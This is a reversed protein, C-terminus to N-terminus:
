LREGKRKNQKEKLILSLRTRFNGLFLKLLRAPTGKITAGMFFNKSMAPM